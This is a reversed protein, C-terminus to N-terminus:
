PLEIKKVCDRNNIQEIKSAWRLNNINNNKRQHNDIHNATHEKTPKAGYFATCILDHVYYFKRKLMKKYYNGHHVGFTIVGQHDIRGLNSVKCRNYKKDLLSCWYEGEIKAPDVWRWEFGEYSKSEGNCCKIIFISNSKNVSKVAIRATAYQNVEIYEGNEVKLREVARQRINVNKKRTESTKKGHQKKTLVQLNRLFNYDYSNKDDDNIHDIDYLSSDVIGNFSEYVLKHLSM